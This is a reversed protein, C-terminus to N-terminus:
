QVGGKHGVLEDRLPCHARKIGIEVATASTELHQQPLLLAAAATVVVAATAGVVVSARETLLLKRCGYKYSKGFELQPKDRPHL